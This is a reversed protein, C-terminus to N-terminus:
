YPNEIGLVALAKVEMEEMVTAEHEDQHDHGLLHYVGHVILHTAHDVLAISKEEAERTCTEHALIIDGLLLEGDDTNAASDLLDVQVMPFSLVNTPMDKQRFNKNLTQVEADTAFRISIGVNMSRTIWDAYPSTEIAAMVARESLAELTAEDGWASEASIDIDIM